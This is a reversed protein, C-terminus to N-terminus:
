GEDDGCTAQEWSMGGRKTEKLEVRLDRLEARASVLADWLKSERPSCVDIDPLERLLIIMASDSPPVKRFNCERALWEILEPGSTM